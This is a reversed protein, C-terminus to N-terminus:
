VDVMRGATLRALEDQIRPDWQFWEGELRLDALRAHIERELRPADTCAVAGMLQLPTPSATQLSALRASVDASHGIKVPGDGSGARVFYVSGPAKTVSVIPVKSVDGLQHNRLATPADDAGRWYPEIHVLRSESRGVGCLQRRWHGRVLSRVGPSKGGTSIYDSVARRVDVRVDRTLKFTTPSFDSRGARDLRQQAVQAVPPSSEGPRHQNLEALVGLVMKLGLEARRQGQPTFWNSLDPTRLFGALGCEGQRLEPEGPKRYHNYKEYAFGIGDSATNWLISIQGDHGFDDVFWISSESDLIGAPCRIAFTKWPFKLSNAEEDTMSTCMLSAALRHSLEVTPFGLNAWEQALRGHSQLESMGSNRREHAPPQKASLHEVQGFQQKQHADEATEFAADAAINADKVLGDYVYGTIPVDDPWESLYKDLYEKAKNKNALFILGYGVMYRQFDQTNMQDGAQESAM